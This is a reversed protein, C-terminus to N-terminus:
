IQETMRLMKAGRNNHIQNDLRFSNENKFFTQKEAGNELNKEPKGIFQFSVPKGSHPPGLLNQHSRNIGANESFISITIFILVLTRTKSDHIYRRNFM